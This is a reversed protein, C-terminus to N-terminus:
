FFVDSPVIEWSQNWKAIDFPARLNFHYLDEYVCADVIIKIAEEKKVKLAILAKEESTFVEVDDLPKNSNILIWITLQRKM